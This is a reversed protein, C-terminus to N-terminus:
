NELGSTIIDLFGQSIEVLTPAKDWDNHYRSIATSLYEQNIGGKKGPKPLIIMVAMLERHTISLAEFAENFNNKFFCDGDSRLGNYGNLISINQGNLSLFIPIKNALLVNLARTSCDKILYVQLNYRIAFKGFMELRTFTKVLEEDNRDLDTPLQTAMNELELKQFEIEGPFTRYYSLLQEMVGHRDMRPLEIEATKPLDDPNVTEERFISGPDALESPLPIYQMFKAMDEKIKMGIESPSASELFSDRIIRQIVDREVEIFAISYAFTDYNKGLSSYIVIDAGLAKGVEVALDRTNVWEPRKTKRLYEESKERDIIELSGKRNLERIMCGAMVDAIPRHSDNGIHPSTVLIKVLRQQQSQTGCPFLFVILICLLITRM